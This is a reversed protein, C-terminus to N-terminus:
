NKILEYMKGQLQRVEGEIELLTLLGNLLGPEISCETAIEEFSKAGGELAKIVNGRDSNQEVTFEINDKHYVKTKFIHGYVTEYEELIDEASRVLKAGQQIIRNTGTANLNTISGPIAFVDRGQELAHDVTIMAGSKEAAEAVLLGPSMGSIIRNRLPFNFPLPPTDFPFESIIAGNKMIRLMLEKNDKPYIVNVGCGLIALTKGGADLAGIHAAADIGKAMGSVVTVSREALGYALRRAAEWGEKTCSRTGIISVHFDENPNFYEGRIYLVLPPSHIAKLMIPYDKDLMCIIKVGYKEAFWLEKEVRKLGKDTLLAVYEPRIGVKELAKKDAHFVNDAIGDFAALIEYAAVRKNQMAFAYWLWYRIDAM